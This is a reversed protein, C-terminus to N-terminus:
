FFEEGKREDTLRIGGLSYGLEERATDYDKTASDMYGIIM